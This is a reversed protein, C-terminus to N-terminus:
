PNVEPYATIMQYTSSNEFPYSVTKIVFESNKSTRPVTARVVLKNGAQEHGIMESDIIAKSINEPTWGQPFTTKYLPNGTIKDIGSFACCNTKPDKVVLPNDLLGKSNFAALVKYM